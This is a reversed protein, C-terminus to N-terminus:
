SKDMATDSQRRDRHWLYYVPRSGALQRFTRSLLRPSQTAVRDRRAGTTAEYWRRVVYEVTKRIERRRTVHREFDPALPDAGQHRLWDFLRQRGRPLACVGIRQMGAKEFVPNVQGMAALCEVYPVGVDPLTQRVLWHGVGCGRIDPHIVLRRLIRVERNLRRPNGRFRGGTARNRLNLELPSHAYIVIGLPEGGVGDRLVFVRDVFGLEDRHRYHMPAFHEYDAKCGPEIRFNRVLSLPAAKPELLSTTHGGQQRLRIVADPKLDTLLDDHSTAVVVSLARRRALKALNCALAMAARRHLVSGFEDCLLPGARDPSAVQLSIARALRARFRQGDSLEGFRRIWLRPEGLGCATLIDLAEDLDRRCAVADVVAPGRPFRIRGVDRGRPCRRALSKLLLTKGIGSPGVVAIVAGPRLPLSVGHVMTVPEAEPRVGFRHCVEALRDSWPSLSRGRTVDLVLADTAAHTM